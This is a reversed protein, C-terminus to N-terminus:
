IEEHLACLNKNSCYTCWGSLFRKYDIANLEDTSLSKNIKEQDIVPFKDEKKDLKRHIFLEKIKISRESDTDVKQYKKGPTNLLRTKV